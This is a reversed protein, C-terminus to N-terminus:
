TATSAEKKFVDSLYIFVERALLGKSIAALINTSTVMGVLADDRFVSLRRDGLDLMLQVAEEVSTNESVMVPPPSMIEKVSVESPRRSTEVFKVIDRETILGVLKGSEEVMASSAKTENMRSVAALLDEAAQVRVMHNGMIQGCTPPNQSM